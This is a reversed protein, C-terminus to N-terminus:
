TGSMFKNHSRLLSLLEDHDANSNFTRKAEKHTTTSIAVAHRNNSNMKKRTAELQKMKQLLKEKTPQQPLPQQPLPHQPLSRQIFKKVINFLDFVCQHLIQPNDIEKVDDISEFMLTGQLIYELDYLKNDDFDELTTNM